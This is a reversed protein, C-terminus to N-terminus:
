YNRYLFRNVWQPVTKHSSGLYVTGVGEIHFDTSYNEIIDGDNEYEDKIM